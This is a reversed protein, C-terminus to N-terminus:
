CCTTQYIIQYILWSIVLKSQLVTQINPVKVIRTPLIIAPMFNNTLLTDVYEATDRNDNCKVLDINIDGAIICPYKQNALTDLVADMHQKFEAIQQNPHRYIGGIIYKKNNKNMEFWLDDIRNSSLNHVQYGTLEQYDISNSIFMGIGGIHSDCPLHYHFSYGPLINCYFDINTSWIESLVIVDFKIVLLELFQCLERYHCNLSRINLHFVALEIHKCVKRVRNNFQVETVYQFNTDDLVLSKTLKSVYDYLISKQISTSLNNMSLYSNFEGDSLCHFPLENM